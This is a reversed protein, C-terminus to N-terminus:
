DNHAAFRQFNKRLESFNSDLEHFLERMSHHEALDLDEQNKYHAINAEHNAIHRRLDEIRSSKKKFLQKYEQVHEEISPLDPHKSAIRTLEKQFFKMEDQFFNLKTSWEQHERHYLSSVQDEKM